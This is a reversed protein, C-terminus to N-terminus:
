WLGLFTMAVLLESEEKWTFNCFSPGSFSFRLHPKIGLKYRKVQSSLFGLGHM